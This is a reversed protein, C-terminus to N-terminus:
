RHDAELETLRARWQRVLERESLDARKRLAADLTMGSEVDRYVMRLGALGAQDLVVQCAIRASEYTARLQEPTSPDFQELGPLTRPAGQVRVQETIRATSDLASPGLANVAVVDAFGEVLWVPVEGTTTAAGMAVHVLEHTVVGRERDTLMGPLEDPNVVVRVPSGPERAGDATGVVAAVDAYTGSPEGLAAAVAAATAPVEVAVNGRWGPVSARAAPLSRRVLETYGALRDSGLSAAVIVVVEADVWRVNVPGTLWLPTRDGGGLASIAVRDGDTVFEVRVETRATDRDVGPVRWGLDVAATWRGDVAGASTERNYGLRLDVMGLAQANRAIAALHRGAQTDGSPALAAAAPADGARFATQLQSVTAAAQAPQARDLAAAGTGPESRDDRLVLYAGTALLSLVLLLGIM